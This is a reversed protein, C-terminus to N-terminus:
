ARAGMLVSDLQGYSAAMGENMGSALAGDRAQKDHYRITMTMQTRGRTETFETIVHQAPMPPASGMEFREDVVIRSPAVVEHVTQRLGFGSGDPGKWEYHASGGTRMDVECVPMSWGPPGTLWRQLLEPKTHAEFVTERPADFERKVVIETDSPLTVQFTEAISM